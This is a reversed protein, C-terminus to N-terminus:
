IQISDADTEVVTRGTAIRHRDIAMFVFTYIGLAVILLQQVGWVLWAFTSAQADYPQGLPLTGVGYIALGFMIAYQWAGVGGNTPVAMGLSSFVFCVLVAVVSLDRTFSFAQAAILLQMFYCGWILVTYLLFMWKGRMHVVSMLGEVLNHLVLRAKGILKNDSKSRYVAVLLWVLLLCAVVLTWFWWTAYVSTAASASGSRQGFFKMFAGQALFFTVVTLLLVTLTDALRDGVMSGMVRTFSTKQRNAVYGSRWVEGLRPVLLNMFYTGFISVILVHLPAKVGIARLQLRWRMARFVHSMVSVALVPVFWWYNVDQDMSRSIAQMDVNTYFYYVLLVSLGIPLGYRLLANITKKM